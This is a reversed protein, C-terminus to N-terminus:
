KGDLVGKGPMIKRMIRYCLRFRKWFGSRLTNSWMENLQKRVLRRLYKEKKESM